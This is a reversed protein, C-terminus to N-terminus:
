FKHIECIDNKYRSIYIANYKSMYRWNFEAYIKTIFFYNCAHAM